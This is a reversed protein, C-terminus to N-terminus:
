EAILPCWHKEKADTSLAWYWSHNWFSVKLVMTECNVKKQHLIYFYFLVIIIFLLLVGFIESFFYKIKSWLSCSCSVVGMLMCKLRDIQCWFGHFSACLNQLMPSAAARCLLQKWVSKSSLKNWFSYIFTVQNNLVVHWMQLINQTNLPVHM